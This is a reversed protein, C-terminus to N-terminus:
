TYVTRQHNKCEKIEHQTMVHDGYNKHKSMANQPDLENQNCSEVCFIVGRGICLDICIM